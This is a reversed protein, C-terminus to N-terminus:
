RGSLQQMHHDLVPFAPLAQQTQQDAVPANKSRKCSSSSPLGPSAFAGAQSTTASAYSSDTQLSTSQAGSAAEQWGQAPRKSGSMPPGSPSGVTSSLGDM